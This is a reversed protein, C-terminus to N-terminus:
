KAVFTVDLWRKIEDRASRFAALKQLNTGHIASPDQFNRHLYKDAGPLVPCSEKANDCVTVVVNIKKGIFEEISKSRLAKTNIGLEELVKLTLSHVGRPTSGASFGQYQEGYFHNLLAEALQSRASNHTCLFLVTKM